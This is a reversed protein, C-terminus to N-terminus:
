ARRGSVPGSFCGEGCGRTRLARSRGGPTTLTLATKYAQSPKDPNERDTDPATLRLVTQGTSATATIGIEDARGGVTIADGSPPPAFPLDADKDTPPQTVGLLATCGCVPACRSPM